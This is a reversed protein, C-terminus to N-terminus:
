GNVAAKVKFKTWQKHQTPDIPDIVDYNVGDKVVRCKSTVDTNYRIIVNAGDVVQVSNAVWSESGGLPYWSCYVYRPTDSALTNGLDVWEGASFDDGDTPKVYHQIRIKTRLDGAQM